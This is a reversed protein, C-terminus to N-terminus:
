PVALDFGAEGENLGLEASKEKETRMTHYRSKDRADDVRVGGAHQRFRKPTRREQGTGTLNRGPM